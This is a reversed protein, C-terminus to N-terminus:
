PLPMSVVPQAGVEVAGVQFVLFFQYSGSRNELDTRDTRAACIEDRVYSVLPQAEIRSALMLNGALLELSLEIVRRASILVCPLVARRQCQNLYVCFDPPLLNPSQGM